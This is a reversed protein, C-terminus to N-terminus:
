KYDVQLRGGGTHKWLYVAAICEYRQEGAAEAPIWLSLTISISVCTYAALILQLYLSCTYAALILQLYM